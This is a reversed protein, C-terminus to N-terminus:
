CILTPSWYMFAAMLLNLVLFSSMVVLYPPLLRPLRAVDERTIM